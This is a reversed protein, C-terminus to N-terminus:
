ASHRTKASGPGVILRRVRVLSVQEDSLVRGLSHPFASIIKICAARADVLANPLEIHSLGDIAFRQLARLSKLHSNNAQRYPLVEL